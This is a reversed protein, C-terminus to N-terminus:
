RPAESLKSDLYQIIHREFESLAGQNNCNSRYVRVTLENDQLVNDVTLCYPGIEKKERFALLFKETGKIIIPDLPEVLALNFARSDNIISIRIDKAADASFIYIKQFDPTEQIKINESQPSCGFLFILIIAIYTKMKDM